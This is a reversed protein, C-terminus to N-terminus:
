LAGSRKGERVNRHHGKLTKSFVHGGSGDAVFYLMDSDAPHLAADISSRGPCCIPTPPLGKSVYTNHPSVFSLDSRLLKRGLDMKGETIAYIVTPDIQLLMGRKLRNLCVAAVLPREAAIATEKEILSALTLAELPTKLDVKPNRGEWAMNLYSQMAKNMRTLLTRRSEGRPYKYTDPMLVGEPWENEPLGGTLKEERALDEYIQHLTQGEVVTFKHLYVKGSVFLKSIEDPSMFPKLKYEGAKMDGSTNKLMNLAIFIYRSNIYGQNELTLAISNLSAGKEIVFFRSEKSLGPELAYHQLLLALIVFLIIAISFLSALLSFLARM